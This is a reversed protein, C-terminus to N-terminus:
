PVVGYLYDERYIHAIVWPVYSGNNNRSIFQFAGPYLNGPVRGQAIKIGNQGDSAHRCLRFSAGMDTSIGGSILTWRGSASNFKVTVSAGGGLTRATAGSVSYSGSVTLTLSSFDGLSSLRVRVMGNQTNGATMPASAPATDARSLAPCPFVVAMILLITLLRKYMLAEEAM